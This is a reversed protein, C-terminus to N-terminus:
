LGWWHFFTFVCFFIIVAAIFLFFGAWYADPPLQFPYIFNGFAVLGGIGLGILPITAFGLAASAIQKLM